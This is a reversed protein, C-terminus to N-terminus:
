SGSISQSASAFISSLSAEQEIVSKGAAGPTQQGTLLGQGLEDFTRLCRFWLPWPQLALTLTVLAPPLLQLFVRAIISAFLTTPQGWTRGAQRSTRMYLM